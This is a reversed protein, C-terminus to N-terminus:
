ADDSEAAVAMAGEIFMEQLREITLRCERVRDLAVELSTTALDLEEHAVVLERELLEMAVRRVTRDDPEDM